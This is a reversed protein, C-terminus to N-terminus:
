IILLIPSKLSRFFFIIEFRKMHIFVSKGFYEM